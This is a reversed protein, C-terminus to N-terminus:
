KDYRTRLWAWDFSLQLKAPDGGVESYYDVADTAGLKSYNSYMGTAETCWVNLRHETELTPNLEMFMKLKLVERFATRWTTWADQNFHAVGSLKPVTAHPQSLTFDIGPNNNELVLRKNYVIMGMHGYELGNVPNRANFIYHKPEQWYDPQWNFDFNMDVELKAFVAFFWPTTSARAAAQYAAVRGNVNSVRHIKNVFRPFDSVVHKQNLVKLLHEYWREADPEGNSIYVIDLANDAYYNYPLSEDYKYLHPYDYMQTKLYKKADRPVLTIGGSHSYPRVTRDKETWVCDIVFEGAESVFGRNSFLVYPTSFDHSKIVEILNDSDYEVIPSAWRRVDQSTNYSIVNFWDLIELDYMQAKFIEVPIYFTDGRKENWEGKNNSFCHIQHSEWAGPRWTFDFYEYDCISNLIWINETTATTVIRRFTDLYNDVFRTSRIHPYKKKLQELYLISEPNGHDVYYMASSDEGTSVLQNEVFNLNPFEEIGKAWESHRLFEKKNILFTDTWKNWKSGFVHTMSRQWPEPQWKFNFETYDNESSIVWFLPTKAKTACRAITERMSNAYRTRTVEVGLDTLGTIRANALPNSKDIYFIQLDDLEALLEEYKRETAGPVHYEVTASRNGEWYQNGFVYIFPPDFPDPCWSFDFKIPADTKVQWNETTSALTAHNNHMYKRETAGPVHYEVTPMREASHWQNGFVYIFPPDFPHPQWSYDFADIDHLTVWNETSPNATIVQAHHHYKRETLSDKCVLFAGGFEHWQSPWVHLHDREWPVPTYDFDFGTYDNDSYICWYHSTRARRAADELSVAQKEFAFLNPKSGFYFVDFM